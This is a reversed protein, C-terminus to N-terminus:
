VIDRQSFVSNPMPNSFSLCVLSYMIIWTLQGCNTVM